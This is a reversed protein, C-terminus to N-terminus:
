LVDVRKCLASYCNYRYWMCVYEYVYNSLPYTAAYM